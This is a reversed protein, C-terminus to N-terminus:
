KADHRATKSEEQSDDYVDKNHDMSEEADGAVSGISTERHQEAKRGPLKGSDEEAYFEVDGDAGLVGKRLLEGKEKMIDELTVGRDSFIGLHDSILHKNRCGPCNILITGYHYGHKSIRHTSREMCKNCTFTLDYGPQEAKRAEIEQRRKAADGDDRDTLPRSPAYSTDSYFRLQKPAFVSGRSLSRTSCQRQWAAGARRVPQGLHRLAFRVTVTRQM